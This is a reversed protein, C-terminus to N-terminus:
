NNDMYREKKSNRRPPLLPSYIQVADYKRKCSKILRDVTAVSLGLKLAQETRTWGAIRTRIIKEEDRTLGGLRIFEELIIKNWPVEHAM